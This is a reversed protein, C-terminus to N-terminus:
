RDYGQWRGPSMWGPAKRAARAAQRQQEFVSPQPRSVGFDSHFSSSDPPVSHGNHGAGPTTQAQLDAFGNGCAQMTVEPPEDLAVRYHRALGALETDPRADCVVLVDDAYAADDLMRAPDICIGLHQEFPVRIREAIRLCRRRNM